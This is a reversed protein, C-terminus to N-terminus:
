KMEPQVSMRLGHMGMMEEKEEEQRVQIRLPLAKMAKAAEKNNPDLQLVRTYDLSTLGDHSSLKRNTTCVCFMGELASSM